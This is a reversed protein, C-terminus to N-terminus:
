REWIKDSAEKMIISCRQKELNTWTMESLNSESDVPNVKVVNKIQELGMILPQLYDEHVPVKVTVLFSQYSKSM